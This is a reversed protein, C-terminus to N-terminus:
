ETHAEWMDFIDVQSDQDGTSSSDSAWPVNGGAKTEFWRRFTVIGMDVSNPTFCIENYSTGNTSSSYYGMDKMNQYQYHLLGADQHLVISSGIHGFWAPTLPNM